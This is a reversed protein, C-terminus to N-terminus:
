KIYVDMNITSLQPMTNCKLMCALPKNKGKDATDTKVKFNVTISSKPDITTGKKIETTTSDCSINYDEIILPKAGDNYLSFPIIASDGASITDKKDKLKIIRLRSKKKNACSALLIVLLCLIIKNM